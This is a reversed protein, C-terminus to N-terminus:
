NYGIVDIWNIWISYYFHFGLFMGSCVQYWQKGCANKFHNQLHLFNQHNQSVIQKVTSYFLVMLYVKCFHCNFLDTCASNPLDTFIITKALKVFECKEWIELFWLLMRCSKLCFCGMSHRFKLKYLGWMMRQFGIHFGYTIRSIMTFIDNKSGHSKM